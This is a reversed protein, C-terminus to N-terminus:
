QPKSPWWGESYADTKILDPAFQEKVWTETRSLGLSATVCAIGYFSPVNSDVFHALM